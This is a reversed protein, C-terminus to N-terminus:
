DQADGANRSNGNDITRAVADLVGNVFRSAEASSFEKALKIAEDIIVNRPANGALLEWVALRLINRDVLAMRDTHWQRSERDILGDAKKVAAYAARLMQQAEAVAQPQDRGEAIFDIAGELASEGQVDLCCM